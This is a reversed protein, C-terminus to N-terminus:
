LNETSKRLELSHQYFEQPTLEKIFVFGHAARLRPHDNKIFFDRGLCTKIKLYQDVQIKRALRCFPGDYDWSPFSANKQSGFSEMFANEMIAMSNLSVPVYINASAPHFKFWVNRYGWIRLKSIDAEKEYLKLAESISQM